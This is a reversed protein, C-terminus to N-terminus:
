QSVGELFFVTHLQLSKAAAVVDALTANQAAAMYDEPTMNLGNLAATSYYNEISGVSDHTARASSCIAQKAASLEAETIDGSRCAELQNMIEARVKEVEDCDIGASVTLIGKASHYGSGIDYCLSLKERVNMFLKSTMGAGFILNLLQMPVLLPDGVTIPTIFGMALKGQSVDMQETYEGKGGDRFPTQAPLNVYDREVEGFVDKMLEAVTDPNASGVYFIDIRSEKLIKRYHRYLNEATIAAVDEKEGLRPIGFSDASCMKRFLQSGVYTRKDNIESELVATLNKKEGEVFDTRFVGNELAPCLLLEKLFATMPEMIKDGSLALRDEVFGCSLGTTQYDGVRRVTAGVAAGYLDDLRRTIARIDSATACGRLLVAPLLANMAAEERCMPRVLQICLGAQKFRDDPFCRLTIGPFLTITKTM